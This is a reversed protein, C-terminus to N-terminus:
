VPILDGVPTSFITYAMVVGVTVSGAVPVVVPPVVSVCVTVLAIVNVCACYPIYDYM